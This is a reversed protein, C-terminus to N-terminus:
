LIVQIAFIPWVDVHACGHLQLTVVCGLVLRPLFFKCFFHQEIENEGSFYIKICNNYSFNCNGNFSYFLYDPNPDLIVTYFLELRKIFFNDKPDFDSWFDVFYIKVLKKM